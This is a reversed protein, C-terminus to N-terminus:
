HSPDEQEDRGDSRREDDKAREKRRSYEADSIPRGIPLAKTPTSPERSAGEDEDLDSPSFAKGAPATGGGGTTCTPRDDPEEKM